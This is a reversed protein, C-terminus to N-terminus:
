RKKERLAFEALPTLVNCIEDQKERSTTTIYNEARNLYEIEIARSALRTLPPFIYRTIKKDGEETYTVAIIRSAKYINKNKKKRSIM